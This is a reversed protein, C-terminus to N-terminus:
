RVGPDFYVATGNLTGSGTGSAQGHMAVGLHDGAPGMFAATQSLFASSSTTCSGGSCTGFMTTEIFAGKGAQVTIPSPSSASFSWNQQSDPFAFTAAPFTATRSTFDVQIGGSTQMSGFEGVNNSVSFAILDYLAIGSKAAIVEPPTNPGVLYHFITGVQGNIPTTGTADTVSGLFWRGWIASLPNSGSSSEDFGDSIAGSFAGTSPNATRGAPVSFSTLVLGSEGLFQQTQEDANLFAAVTSPGGSANSFAALLVLEPAPEGFLVLPDGESNRQDTVVFPEPAPPTPTDSPRSEANFGSNQMNETTENGRQGFSRQQADLNDYLFPPPGILPTITGDPQVHFFQNAGFEQDDNKDNVVGILGDTVGGYSGNPALEGLGPGGTDSQALTLSAVTTRRTQYCDNECHVLTYHTGRVGVTATPLRVTHKAPAVTGAVARLPARLADLIGSKAEGPAPKVAPAAARGKEPAPQPATAATRVLGEGPQRAVAGTVARMGGRLLSFVSRDDPDAGGSYKHEDIRFVTNSRLAIVTEDSMRIQASSREGLRITDGVALATGAAARTQQAGRVLTVEGIAILFRGADQALAISPLVLLSLLLARM